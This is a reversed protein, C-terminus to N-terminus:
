SKLNFSWQATEVALDIFARVNASPLRAGPYVIQIPLPKPEYKALVVQLAGSTLEDIVQYSLVVAVGGGHVAHTIAADASNTVFSPEIGVRLEERGRYFRWEHTASIPTLEITRHHVLDRPSRLARHAALYDPSAVAVRRTAGLVRARLSSDELVGIRVAVDVGEEVLNVMRDVLQLEGRVAPHRALFESLLPAVERRGFVNPATVVFRGAPEAHEARAAREADDLDALIRRAREFYRAGADTLKVVRTTRNFLRLSLQEELAAIARTVAPASLGLKRAAQAFGRHEAVAVFTQM